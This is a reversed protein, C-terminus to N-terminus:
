QNCINCDKKHNKSWQILTRTSIWYRHIIDVVKEWRHCYNEIVKKKFNDDYTGRIGWITFTHSCDNCKYRQWWGKLIWYKKIKKSYCSICDRIFSNM